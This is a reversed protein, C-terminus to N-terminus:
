DDQTHRFHEFGDPAIEREVGQADVLCLRRDARISGVAQLPTDFSETWARQLAVTDAAACCFLLEHDEGDVLARQVDGGAADALPIRTAHLTAGVGGAHLLHALDCALGDSLDICAHVAGWTRLWQGEAVRPTFDLHHGARSGGLRGTVWIVDGAQAGARRLATGRPAAGIGFVHAQFPAACTTDGGVIAANHRAALAQAGDYFADVADLTLTEPAVLDILLWRPTAGMAALDSLVRGCAKHGVRRWDTGREFHIGEIVADTTLLVDQDGGPSPLLACDDGIGLADGPLSPLRAAIRRILAREGTEGLTTM